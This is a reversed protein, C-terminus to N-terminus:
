TTDFVLYMGNRWPLLVDHTFEDQVVVDEITRPPTQALGWPILQALTRRPALNRALEDLEAPPLGAHDVVQM